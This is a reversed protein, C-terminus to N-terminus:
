WGTHKIMSYRLILNNINLVGKKPDKKLKMLGNFSSLDVSPANYEITGTLM